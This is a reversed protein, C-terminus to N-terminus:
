ENLTVQTRRENSMRVAMRNKEPCWRNKEPNKEQRRRVSSIGLWQVDKLSLRRGTVEHIRGVPHGFAAGGHETRPVEAQLAEAHGVTVGNTFCGADRM